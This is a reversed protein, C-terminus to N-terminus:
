KKPPGWAVGSPGNPPITTLIASRMQDGFRKCNVVTNSKLKGCFENWMKDDQAVKQVSTAKIPNQMLKTQLFPISTVGISNVFKVANAVHNGTFYNYAARVTGAGPIWDSWAAIPLERDDEDPADPPISPDLVFSMDITLEKRPRDIGRGRKYVDYRFRFWQVFPEELSNM